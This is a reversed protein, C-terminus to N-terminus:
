LLTSVQIMSLMSSYWLWPMIESVFFFSLLPLVKCLPWVWCRCGHYEYHYNDDTHHSYVMPTLNTEIHCDSGINSRKWYHWSFFGHYEPQHNSGRQFIHFDTPIIVNGIYPFIFTMNWVVLWVYDWWIGNYGM